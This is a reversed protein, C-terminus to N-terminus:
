TTPHLEIRVEVCPRKAPSTFPEPLTVDDETLRNLAQEYHEESPSSM